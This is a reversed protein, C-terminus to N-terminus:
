ISLKSLSAKLFSLKSSGFNSRITGEDIKESDTRRIYAEIVIVANKKINKKITRRKLCLFRGEPLFNKFSM